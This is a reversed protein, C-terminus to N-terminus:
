RRLNSLPEWQGNATRYKWLNWGNVNRRCVARGAGSPTNYLAGNFQIRGSYLVHAKYEKGKYTAKITKGSLLGKLVPKASKAKIRSTAGKKGKGKPNQANSRKNGFIIDEERRKVEQYRSKLVKKLDESNKLKGLSINAKPNAIRLVFTELERMHESKRTIYLSFHDWKGALKDRQHQKLRKKLDRALGVYVLRHNKGKYLAYIGHQEGILEAILEPYKQFVTSTILELHGTILTQSFFSLM